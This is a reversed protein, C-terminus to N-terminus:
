NAIGYEVFVGGYPEKSPAAEAVKIKPQKDKAFNQKISERGRIAFCKEELAELDYKEADKKLAEFAENGNLEDFREFLDERAERAAKEEATKKYERLTNLEDTMSQITNSANEFKESWASEAGSCWDTIRSFVGAFVDNDAGEDFEAVVWKMRKRTSQDISVADGNMSYSFAYLKWDEACEAYVEMLEKDYDVFFYLQEQGWPTEFTGLDRIAECLGSRVEGELAFTEETPEESGANEENEESSDDPENAKMAEFRERLEDISLDDLAFDLEDVTLGYEEVLALKEDLNEGGETLDNKIEVEPSPSNIMSYTEKLDAMMEDMKNKFSVASIYLPHDKAFLEVDASEFCPETDEGLLCFATFTFDDIVYSGDDKDWWGNKVEIEMSQAEIGDKLIKDYAEQRKWLLVDTSLYENTTGDKEKVREWNWTASEPVVGVPTTLNILKFSSSEDPDRVLMIDHSGITDSARDYRCVVPCNFMTPIAREFSEKSIYSGNRNKGHYAIRLRGIDFSPNLERFQTLSSSYTLNMAKEM